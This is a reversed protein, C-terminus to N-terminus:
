PFFFRVGVFGSINTPNYEALSSQGYAWKLTAESKTSFLSRVEANLAINPTFFYDAGASVHVGYTSGVELSPSMYPPPGYGEVDYDLKNWLYDFGAGVYPVFTSKPMFRWQAGVSLDVTKATAFNENVGVGSAELKVKLYMVDFTVALNDTIGYMFGGGGAWGIRSKIEKDLLIHEEDLILGIGADTFENNFIHSAGGRLTVGFKGKVSEAMASSSLMLFAVVFLFFRKM